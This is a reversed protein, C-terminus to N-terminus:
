EAKGTKQYKRFEEAEVQVYGDAALMSRGYDTNTTTASKDSYRVHLTIVSLESKNSGKANNGLHM